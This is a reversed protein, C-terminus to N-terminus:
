YMPYNQSGRRRQSSYGMAGLAAAGGGAMTRRPYQAMKSLAGAANGRMGRGAGMIHPGAGDL